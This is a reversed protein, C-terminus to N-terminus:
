VCDAAAFSPLLLLGDSKREDPTAKKGQFWFAKVPEFGYRKGKEEGDMANVLEPNWLGWAGKAQPDIRHMLHPIWRGRSEHLQYLREAIYGRLYSTPAPPITVPHSYELKSSDQDDDVYLYEKSSKSM